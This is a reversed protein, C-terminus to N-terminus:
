KTSHIHVFLHFRSLLNFLIWFCSFVHFKIFSKLLKVKQHHALFSESILLLKEFNHIM